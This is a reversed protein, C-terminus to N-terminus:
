KMLAKILDVTEQSEYWYFSNIVVENTPAESMDVCFSCTINRDSIHIILEANAEFWNRSMGESASKISNIIPNIVSPDNIEFEKIEDNEDKYRFTMSTVGEIMDMHFEEMGVYEMMKDFLTKSLSVYRAGGSNISVTGDMNASMLINNQPTRLYISLYLSNSIQNQVDVMYYVPESLVIDMMEKQEDLTLMRNQLLNDKQLVTSAVFWSLEAGPTAYFWEFEDSVDVPVPGPSYEYSGLVIEEGSQTTGSIYGNENIIDTFTYNLAEQGRIQEGLMLGETYLLATRDVLRDGIYSVIIVGCDKGSHYDRIFRDITGQNYIHGNDFIAVLVMEAMMVMEMDHYDYPATLGWMNLVKEEVTQEEDASAIPTASTTPSVGPLNSTSTTPSEVNRCGVLSFSIIGCLLLIWGKYIRM